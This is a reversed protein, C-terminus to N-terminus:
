KKLLAPWNFIVHIPSSEAERTSTNILFRQGDATVDYQARTGLAAGFTKGSLAPILDRILSIFAPGVIVVFMAPFIFFILPVLM